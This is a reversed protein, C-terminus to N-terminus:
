QPAAGALLKLACRAPRPREEADGLASSLAAAHDKLARKALVAGAEPPALCVLVAVVDLVLMALRTSGSKLGAWLTFLEAAEPSSALYADLLPPEGSGDPHVPAVFAARASKLGDCAIGPDSSSLSRVFDHLSFPADPTVAADDAPDDAPM